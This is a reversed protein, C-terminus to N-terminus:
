ANGGRAGQEPRSSRAASGSARPALDLRGLAPRDCGRAALLPTLSGSAVAVVALAGAIAGLVSMLKAPLTRRETDRAARPSALSGIVAAAWRHSDGVFWVGWGEHTAAFVAVALARLATAVLDNRNLTM